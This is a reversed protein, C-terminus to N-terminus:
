PLQYRVTLQTDNTLTTTFAVRGGSVQGGDSTGTIRAGAPVGIRVSLKEPGMGPQKQITLRYVQEDGEVLVVGQTQWQWTLNANGPPVLISTGFANRGAEPAITDVSTVPDEGQGSVQVLESDVPVLLRVDAGYLGNPDTSFSRILAYPEGEKLADNQWDLRLTEATGGDAGIVVNLFSSRQVVLNYKSTPAVNAEVVYLYDGADQRVRGEWPTGAIATQLGPDRFWALMLREDGIRQLGQLLPVWQDSPLSLLRDLVITALDNLFEKRHSTPTSIGRTQGLATMTVEGAHVTVGYDPVDVPGIVDLIRDLAYTTLAIVGDIDTDGSELEYLRLADQASTPFDPSWNADALQWSAEGLLHDRLGEPPAVYPVGPKLDLTFVDMFTHETLRGDQFTVTGVTGAYGGTPRLEAPNQALVLYRAQGGWGLMAPLVTDMSRYAELMPRYRDLPAAMMAAAQDIEAIAGPPIAALGASADAVLQHIRDVDAVSTAMLKVLGALISEQAGGAQQERLGVFQDALTMALDGAQLLDRASRLLSDAAVVKLHTIPLARVAGVLPDGTLLDGLPLLNARLADLDTRLTTLKVRDVDELALGDLDGALQRAAALTARATGVYPVYRWALLASAAVLVAAVVLAARVRRHRVPRPAPVPDPSAHAQTVPATM